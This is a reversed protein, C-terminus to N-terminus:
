DNTTGKATLVVSNGTDGCEEPATRQLIEMPAKDGKGPNFLPFVEGTFPARFSGIICERDVDYFSLERNDYNLHVGVKTLRPNVPLLVKPETSFQCYDATAPSSSLFWFGNSATPPVNCRQLCGTANTVGVWWSQKPEVAATALSVEWYHQGSSFGPTGRIATLCTVEQGDPLDQSIDRLISGKTKLYPNTAEDLKINVYYDKAEAFAMPKAEPLLKLNEDAQSKETKVKKGCVLGRKKFWLFGLLALVAILLLAFAVWGAVSSGSEQQPPQPPIRLLLRAEKVEAGALGVSCSVDSSGPVLLWSHVSVLGSSVEGYELSKPTLIKKGDSWQLRPRPYWGESQCSVNALNEERWVATLVPSTGTKTVNLSVRGRDYGQDSSVYCSYEGADEITVDLLRLSVDGATLGASAADKSGFSVRGVYSAAQTANLTKERYLIIPADFHDDRYWRVELGEASQAPNLWCPLTTAHGLHESVPSRVSVVISKSVSASSPLAACLAALLHIRTMTQLGVTATTYDWASTDKM